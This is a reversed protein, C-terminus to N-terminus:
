QAETGTLAFSNGTRSKSGYNSLFTHCKGGGKEYLTLVEGIMLQDDVLVLGFTGVRLKTILDIKATALDAGGQIARFKERRNTIIMNATSRAAERANETNGPAVVHHRGLGSGLRQEQDMKIIGHIKRALLQRESLTQPENNMDQQSSPDANSKDQKSIHVALAAEKTQNRERITILTPLSFSSLDLAPATSTPTEPSPQIVSQLLSQVATAGATSHASIVALYTQVAERIQNLLDPDDEPLSELHELDALNLAAAAYNSEQIAEETVTLRIVQNYDNAKKLADELERRDSQTDDMSTSEEEDDSEINDEHNNVHLPHINTPQSQSTPVSENQLNPFYGLLSWLTRAEEHRSKIASFIEDDQLFLLLMAIDVGDSDLYFHSYGSATWQFDARSQKEKCAAMLRVRLKPILRLVDLMTFDPIMMRLFGFSHENSESGTKWPILPFKGQFRDRYIYLLAMYGNVFIDIIDDAERSIFYQAESYGCDKLFSKWLKKFFLAQYLMKIREVHPLSRNQFADVMKGFVFLYVILGLNSEFRSIAYDLTASSFLRAAARDDQRDLKEVDRVYLPSSSLDAAMQCIHQYFVVHSGLVLTRAGSMLNNQCTKRLHKADQIVALLLGQIQLTTVEIPPWNPEPSPIRRTVLEAHGSRVTARRSDREVTSGDSGLSVIQFGAPLLLDLILKEMMALENSNVTSPIPKAALILPPISPLPINLTWLRLKSATMPSATKILDQVIDISPVELSGGTSGILFWKQKHNDFYPSLAPHLKTDDVSLDLPANLPYGYDKLYGQARHLLQESIGEDFGPQKARIQRFSRESRGGFHQLFSRYASPSICCLEHAWEDFAPNYKMNQLGVGNADREATEIMVEVMGMFVPQKDFKGSSFHRVFRRLLAEATSTPEETILETLGKMNGYMQGIAWSQFKVPTFVKNENKTKRNIATLFARIKLLQLCPGCPAIDSISEALVVKECADTGIAFVRGGNHDLQWTHTNRQQLVLIAKQEASLNVISAVGFMKKALTLESVGGASSVFTRSIYQPIRQDNVKTLGPCPFEKLERRHSVVTAASSSFSATSVTGMAFLTSTQASPATPKKKNCTKLHDKFNGVEYPGSMKISQGCRSHRVMRMKSVESEDVEFNKDLLALKQKFNSWQTASFKYTGNEIAENAAKRLVAARSPADKATLNSFSVDPQPKPMANNSRQKKSPKNNTTSACDQNPLAALPTLNPVPPYESDFIDCFERLRLQRSTRTTWLPVDFLYHKITNIAIIGCSFGDPQKAHVLDNNLTYRRLPLHHKLWTHTGDVLKRSPKRNISDGWSVTIESARCDVLIAAWHNPPSHAVTVVQYQKPHNSLIQGIDQPEHQAHLPYDLMANTLSTTLEASPVLVTTSLQNTESLIRARLRYLMANVSHSSLYGDGLFEASLAVPLEDAIARAKGNWPVRDLIATTRVRLEDDIGPSARLWQCADKWAKQAASIELLRQWLGLVNLPLFVGTQPVSQLRISIHGDLIAQGVHARLQTLTTPAPLSCDPQKLLDELELNPPSHSFFSEAKLFNTTQSVAPLSCSLLTSITANEIGPLLNDLISSSISVWAIVEDSIAEPVDKYQRGQGIWSTLTHPPSDPPM